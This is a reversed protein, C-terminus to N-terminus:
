SWAQTDSSYWLRSLCWENTPLYHIFSSETPFLTGSRFSLLCGILVHYLHKNLYKKYFIVSNMLCKKKGSIDLVNKNFYIFHNIISFAVKLSKWWFIPFLTLTITNFAVTLLIEARNHRDTKNTSSVLSSPSFWLCAALWKCIKDCLTTDLVGWWSPIRSVVKSTIPVSQMPLQLDLYLVFVVMVAWFKFYYIL